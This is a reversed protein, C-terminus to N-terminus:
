PRRHRASRRRFDTQWFEYGLVVVPLSHQQEDLTFFRGAELPSGLCKAPLTRRRWRAPSADGDANGEGFRLSKSPMTYMAIGDFARSEAVLNGYIRPDFAAVTATGGNEARTTWYLRVVRGADRVQAPGRLLLRDVVGFMAANAGIGLTLTIATFAFFLPERRLGRLSYRIDTDLDRFWDLRALRRERRAASRRVVTRADDLSGGVRRMADKHAADPSLGKEIGQAVRGEIVAALEDDADRQILDRRRVVLGLLRVIRERANM